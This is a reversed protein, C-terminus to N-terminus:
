YPEDDDDDVLTLGMTESAAPRSLLATGIEEPQVYVAKSRSMVGATARQVAEDDAGAFVAVDVTTMGSVPVQVTRTELQPLAELGMADAAQRAYGWGWGQETVGEMLMARIYVRLDALGPMPGEDYVDPDEPGSFFVPAGGTLTVGYVGEGCHTPRIQGAAVVGATILAFKELAETRSSATITTGYSGDIPVNIQYKAKGTVPEAGMRNLRTNVWDRDVHGYEVSNTAYQTIQQRLIAAKQAEAFADDPNEHDTM